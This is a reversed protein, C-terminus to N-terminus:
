SHGVSIILGNLNTNRKAVSGGVSVFSSRRVRCSASCVAFIFEKGLKALMLVGCNSSMTSNEDESSSKSVTRASVWRFDFFLSLFNFSVFIGFFFLYTEITLRDDFRGLRFDGM